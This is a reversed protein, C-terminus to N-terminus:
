KERVVVLERTDVTIPISGIQIITKKGRLEKVTGVQRSSKMKVRAGVSLEEGVEVFNDSIKKEKREVSKKEPQGYLLAQMMKIVQDKHENKKWEIVLSKIKRELDKLYALKEESLQNRQKLIEM